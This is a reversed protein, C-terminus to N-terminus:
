CCRHSRWGHSFYWLDDGLAVHRDRLIGFGWDALGGYRHKCFEDPGYGLTARLEPRAIQCFFRCIIRMLFDGAWALLRGLFVVAVWLAGPSRHFDVFLAPQDAWHWDREYTRGRPTQRAGDIRWGGVSCRAARDGSIALAFDGGNWVARGAPRPRNRKSRRCGIGCWGRRWRRRRSACCCFPWRRECCKALGVFLAARGPRGRGSRHMACFGFCRCRM